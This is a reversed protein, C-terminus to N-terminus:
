DPIETCICIKKLRYNTNFQTVQDRADAGKYMM